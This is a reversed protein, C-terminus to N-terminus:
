AEFLALVRQKSHEFVERLVEPVTARDVAAAVMEKTISRTRVLFKIDELDGADARALKSVIMDLPGLVSVTLRGDGFTRDVKECSRRWEPTLIQQEPGFIHTVYLGRPRLEDNARELAKGLNADEILTEVERDDLILDADETSRTLGYGLVLAAGGFLRLHAPGELHRALTQLIDEAPNM